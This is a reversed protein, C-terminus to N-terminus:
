LQLADSVTAMLENIKSIESMPQKEVVPSSAVAIREFRVRWPNGLVEGRHADLVKKVVRSFRVDPRDLLMTCYETTAFQAPKAYLDAEAAVLCRPFGIISSSSICVDVQARM